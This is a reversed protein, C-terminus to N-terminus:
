IVEKLELQNAADQYASQHSEVLALLYVIKCAPTIKVQDVILRVMETAATVPDMKATGAGILPFLISSITSDITSKSKFEKFVNRMGIELRENVTKYGSGIEGRALALHFVYKTGQELLGNTETAVVIGPQVPLSRLKSVEDQLKINLHDKIISGGLDKEADLYRLTGSLSPDYFRALQLDTNESNVIVDVNNINEISGTVIQIRCDSDDAIKFSKGLSYNLRKPKLSEARQKFEQETYVAPGYPYQNLLSKASWNNKRISEIHKQVAIADVQGVARDVDKLNYEVIRLDKIDFPITLGEELLLVVPKGACQAVALEYYVNPNDGTLVVICLRSKLIYEFMQETISGQDSIADSRVPELSFPQLAPQIIHKLVQDANKRKDTGAQGIPSIIFCVQDLNM